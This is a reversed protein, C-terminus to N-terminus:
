RIVKAVQEASRGFVEPAYMQEVKVGPAAFDGFTLARALYRYTHVGARLSDAFLLVRNDYLEAHNFGDWWPREEEGELAWLERQREDSETRFNPNVAEFGAPLPDEVVVFLSEKPVAIELTVVVLSGAKVAALPEGDLSDVKKYVAFGEDRAELKRLPAYTMRIGYYFIGTGTKEARLPLPVGRKFRALPVSARATQGASKFTEELITKEALLVKAKFDPRGREYTQYYDNLAHFVFFNEHTSAWRGAQRKEVLWRAANPLLPNPTGTELLAQLIVATTRANSSYVWALQAEDDEEFHASSATVKAKNLFERSLTEQASLPGKGQFLAKLLLARGFLSLSDREQFLKEAYAPEPRGALALDYLAFAQVTTWAKREYPYSRKDIKARLLNKLYGLSSNLRDRDIPYGTEYAKLLAFAAYASVYPSDFASEPWLGFGGNGRQCAYVERLEARIMTEVEGAALTTLKFDRIIKPAVLYPLIRSLRQELCLYPYNTLYDLSAQLGNLASASAQVDLSGAAADVEPPIMLKEDKATETQDFFGVTETPRPLQVPLSVELGDSDGGMMARFALRAPGSSAAEFSWLVERSEGAALVVERREGKDKSLLGQVDLSLAVQGPKDSHNTVLVGGQFKDGVRAFRPLAPLLLLPKSVRLSAEGRGFLSDRTQAVAMVRFTTLNDPLNFKVVAVGNGDTLLSPNWYATSKFDGRLEVEALGMARAMEAGGGGVNEGKEGYHRQGIVHLRTESTQVSLPKEGYFSSFPDPTQYGILNLVGVDVVAVAVSAAAGAGRADKVRLRVEVPDRPKYTPKDTAVEVALRKESPDVKLNVYGVKFSPKGVDEVQDASANSTRGQILLVSVFANPILDATVPIEVESTSGQIELVQSQLIFEREITLLAKAKEYPSKVLIRAKDGPAYSEADAVLELSDDDKREWPVYDAGTVYVYTTTTVANRAADQASASLVYLGSKEPSFSVPVAETKTRVEQSAVTTDKTESMWELRGGVGAKRVSHWERKVLNVAVKTGGVLAGDPAAAIVEVPLSEGKKLFSTKPRLGIYFSGRHVITQIRNSIQRRSPSQVTAELDASMTSREKEAVLPVQLILKGDKDLSGEGSGLLRSREAPELEDYAEAENGFVFGKHGPPAFWSPNLRLSWSAKQGAMVGGFLYNAKVEAQYTEGFVYSPALTRLHVEFEAPRFAEIRFTESLRTEPEGAAGPPIAATLTYSGLAADERTEFDFAFSGYADLSVKLKHATKNFPDQIECAVESTKPMVWRGKERRRLIGKIHVTEGARYIGRETFLTGATTEPEPNWDYSIGFRYPEVGTGWESSMFATDEDRGAIVWQRPKDWRDKPRFGLAKWGPTQALGSADTRGRWRVTNSDDRIEVEARAVPLGTRLESVWIVNNEPSFKGSIGLETVQIFAKPYRSWEEESLSDLQLFLLGHELPIYERLPIPVFQRENPPLKFSLLKDVGYFGPRPEFSEHTSFVSDSTLVPIVEDKSLRAARLRAQGVNVAYLPYTLDGYAEVVGQGTTMRVSPRYASTAFVVREEAGLANGFEDKLDAPLIATYKTEPKLPLNIWLSDNGHDWESYYEPIEVAPEFKVKAVFEKYIVRNSFSFQLPESPDHNETDALGEFRFAKFTEFRVVANKEMGLPGERGPLGAKLEVAYSYGPKLKAKPHLLLTQAPPFPLDEEKLQKDSARSLDYALTEEGAEAAKGTFAIFGAATGPEVPQNFVLLVDTELKQQNEGDQPINRVLRPRVTQFTWGYDAKLGYGDISRTGAPITVKVETAYPLREKPLFALTRTGMWRFRGALPPDFKLVAEPDEFPEAALAAMPHDFIVVVEAAERVSATEGKPSLHLVGLDGRVEAPTGAPLRTAEPKKKCSATGFLFAAALGLICTSRIKGMITEKL